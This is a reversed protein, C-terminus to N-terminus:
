KQKKYGYYGVLVLGFTMFISAIIVVMRSADMSTKPVELENEIEFLQTESTDKVVIEVAEKGIGAFTIFAFQGMHEIHLRPGLHAQRM